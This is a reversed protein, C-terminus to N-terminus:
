AELSGMGVLGRRASAPAIWGAIDEGVHNESSQGNGDDPVELHLKAYPQIDNANEVQSVHLNPSDLGMGNGAEGDLWGIESATGDQCANEFGDKHERSASARVGDKVIPDM